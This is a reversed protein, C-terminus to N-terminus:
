GRHRGNQLLNFLIVGCVALTILVRPSLLCRMVNSWESESTTSDSDLYDNILFDSFYSKQSPDRKQYVNNSKQPTYQNQYSSRSYYYSPYIRSSKNKNPSSSNSPAEVNKYESKNAQGM